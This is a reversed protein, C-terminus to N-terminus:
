LNGQAIMKRLEDHAQRLQPDTQLREEIVRYGHLVTTHDRGGFHKGL